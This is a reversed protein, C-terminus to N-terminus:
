TLIEGLVALRQSFSQAKCTLLEYDKESEEENINNLKRLREIMQQEDFPKKEEPISKEPYEAFSKIPEIFESRNLQEKEKSVNLSRETSKIKIENEENTNNVINTSTVESGNQMKEKTSNKENELNMKKIENHFTSNILNFFELWENKNNDLNQSLIKPDILSSKESKTRKPETRKKKFTNFDDFSSFIKEHRSNEYCCRLASSDIPHAETNFIYGGADIICEGNPTNIITGVGGNNNLFHDPDFLLYLYKTTEALFFSEM